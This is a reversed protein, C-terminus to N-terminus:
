RARHVVGLVMAIQVRSAHEPSSVSHDDPDRMLVTGVLTRAVVRRTAGDVPAAEGREVAAAFIRELHRDTSEILGEHIARLIADDTQAETALAVLACRRTESFHLPGAVLERLDGPLSGTDAFVAGVACAAGAADVLLDRKTPWRRYLSAKSSGVQAALHAMTLGESGREGLIALAAQLFRGSLTPDTTRGPRASPM